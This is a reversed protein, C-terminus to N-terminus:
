QLDHNYCSINNYYIPIHMLLSCLEHMYKAHMLHTATRGAELIGQEEVQTDLDTAYAASEKADFAERAAIEAALPDNSFRQRAMKRLRVWTARHNRRDRVMEQHLLAV